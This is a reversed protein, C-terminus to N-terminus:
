FLRQFMRAVMLRYTCRSAGRISFVRVCAYILSYLAQTSRWELQSLECHTMVRLGRTASPMAVRVLLRLM